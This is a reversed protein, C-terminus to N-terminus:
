WTEMDRLSAQSDSDNTKLEVGDAKTVGRGNMCVHQSEGSWFDLELTEPIAAANDDAAKDGPVESEEEYDKWRKGNLWGQPYKFPINNKQYDDIYGPIAALASQKERATMRKWVRKAEDKGRKRPYAKWFDEFTPAKNM